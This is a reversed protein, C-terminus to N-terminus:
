KALLKDVSELDTANLTGAAQRLKLGGVIVDYRSKALDRQSNYLERQANLVDINVRVGVRYGLQTAELALKYSSEAAENAKVLAVGSQVGMFATRTGLQITRRANDLDRESKEELALTEKVHNQVSFGAFLPVSAQVGVSYNDTSGVAGQPSAASNNTRSVQGVLDVTPLHGARAKKTEGRAIDLAAQAKRVNPASESRTIWDEANAPSLAPVNVPTLLPKPEVGVRGVLQDLTARKTMLENTAGIEAAAAQDSRAQAERVDTVTVNGVEFNRKAAALQEGIAKRTAQAAELSDRANLVDFYAQALRVMLDQEAAALDAQAGVLASDAQSITATLSRNFLPQTAKLAAQKATNYQTGGAAAPYLALAQANVPSESRGRTLGGTLGVTPLLQGSVSRAKYDAARVQAEAGLFQADYSRAAQYLAMLSQAQADAIGLGSLALLVTLTRYAPRQSSVSRRSIRRFM